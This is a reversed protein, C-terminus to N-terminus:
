IIDIASPIPPRALIPQRQYKSLVEMGVMEGDTNDTSISNAELMKMVKAHYPWRLNLALQSGSTTSALQPIANKSYQSATGALRQPLATWVAASSLVM